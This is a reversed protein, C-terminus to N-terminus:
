LSGDCFYVISGWVIQLPGKRRLAFLRVPIFSECQDIHHERFINTFCEDFVWSRWFRKLFFYIEITNFIVCV